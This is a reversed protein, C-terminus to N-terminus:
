YFNDRELFTVNADLIDRIQIVVNEKGNENSNEDESMVRRNISKPVM